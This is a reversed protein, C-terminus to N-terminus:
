SRGRLSLPAFLGAVYVLLGAGLVLTQTTTASGSILGTIGGVRPSPIILGTGAAALSLVLLLFPTTHIRSM